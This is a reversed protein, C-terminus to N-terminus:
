KLELWKTYTASPSESEVDGRANQNLPQGNSDVIVLKPIGSVQCDKKLKGAAESGFPVVFWDGHSEKFYADQDEESRDSSVFVIALSDDGHKGLVDEYFDKLKPTFGRCPPCWHASFYVAVVKKGQLAEAAPIQPGTKTKLQLGAVQAM